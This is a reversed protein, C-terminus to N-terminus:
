DDDYPPEEYYYEVSGVWSRLQEGMENFASGGRFVVSEFPTGLAHQSIALEVIARCEEHSTDLPHSITLKKTPPFVVPEGVGDEWALFPYLYPQLNCRYITLEDLPGVSKFLEGVRSAIDWPRPSFFSRFSHCVHLRKVDALQPYKQVAWIAQTLIRDGFDERPAHVDDVAIFHLEIVTADTSRFALKSTFRHSTKVEVAVEEVPSKMYQHVMQNLSVPFMDEPIVGIVLGKDLTLSTFRASPCSIHIAIDYGSGDDDVVLGFNEVNPLVTVRGRPVGEFSIPALIRIHVTQLTPSAELFNLLESTRFEESPIVSFDFSVLNPFVFCALSPSLRANSYLHLVKLNVANNFLPQSPPAGEPNNLLDEASETTHIALTHLLPFPGPNVTLIRQTTGSMNGSFSLRRIRRTYTSLLAATSIPVTWDMFVDLASGKARGLLTKVYVEGKSLFLESWLEARHLFARRWHRCVFSARFRDKQSPFHTPILSIIDLPIRNIPVFSNRWERITALTGAIDKDLQSLEDFTFRCHAYASRVWLSRYGKAVCSPSYAVRKLEQNLAFALQSLSLHKELDSQTSM